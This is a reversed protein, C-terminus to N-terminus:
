EQVPLEPKAMATLLLEARSPLFVRQKVKNHIYKPFSKPIYEKYVWVRFDGLASAPYIWVDVPNVASQPFWHPYYHPHKRRSGHVHDLGQAQWYNSWTTGVSVDPVTHDDVPCGGQIMHVVLDAIERFVSFYGIPVQDNLLIREHFNKWSDPIQKDPDYGCRNYIFSRFSHRALLRYNKLAVENSAQTADFAYYELLAMCVTDMYAHTEGLNSQTRLFLSNGAFGHQTLLERIRRGRPKLQEEEWSSVLRSLAAQDVGCLRALGRQTLYPTGDSLVGMQIGDVEVEKVPFLEQQEGRHGYSPSVRNLAQNSVM